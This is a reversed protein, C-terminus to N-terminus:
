TVGLYASFVRPQPNCFHKLGLTAKSASKYCVDSMGFSASLCWEAATPRGENGVAAELRPSDSNNM